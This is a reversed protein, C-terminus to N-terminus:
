NGKEPNKQANLIEEKLEEATLTATGLKRIVVSAAFGALEAAQEFSANCSLSLATTALVTDGAGSVDFVEAARSKFHLTKKGLVLLMGDAGLTALLAKPRIKKYLLSVAKKCEEISFTKKGTEKELEKRNPKAITANKFFSFNKSDVCVIKKQKKAMRMLRAAVVTSFVGKAYDSVVIADADTIERSFCELMKEAVQMPIEASQEEDIRLMQQQRAIIRTKKTTERSEDFVCCNSIKKESLLRVLSESANSDKKGIVGCLAAKAGLSVINGATNAAGGLVLKKEKALLIPVPAEPSIREVDGIIYEDLMIDGIVVIKKAPFSDIIENLDM